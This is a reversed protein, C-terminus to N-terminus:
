RGSRPTCRRAVGHARARGRIAPREEQRGSHDSVIRTAPAIMEARRRDSRGRRSPQPAPITNSATLSEASPNYRGRVSSSRRAEAEGAPAVAPGAGGSHIPGGSFMSGLSTRARGRRPAFRRVPARRGSRGRRCARNSNVSAVASSPLLAFAAVDADHPPAGRALRSTRRYSAGSRSRTRLRGSPSTNSGWGHHRSGSRGSVGLDDQHLAAASAAPRAPLEPEPRPREARRASRTRPRTATQLCRVSARPPRSPRRARPPQANPSATASRCTM